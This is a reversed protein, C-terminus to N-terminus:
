VSAIAEKRGTKEAPSARKVPEEVHLHRAPITGQSSVLNTGTTPSLELNLAKKAEELSLKGAYLSRLTEINSSPGITLAKKAEEISIKGAYLAQLNEQPNM